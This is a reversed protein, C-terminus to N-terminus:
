RRSHGDSSSSHRSEALYCIRSTVEDQGKVQRAEAQRCQDAAPDLHSTQWHLDHSHMLLTAYQRALRDPSSEGALGEEGQSDYSAPPVAEVFPLLSAEKEEEEEEEQELGAVAAGVPASWSVHAARFGLLRHMGLLAGLESM